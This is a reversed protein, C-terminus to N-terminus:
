DSSVDPEPCSLDLSHRLAHGELVLKKAALLEAWQKQHGINPQSLIGEAEEALTLGRFMTYYPYTQSVLTDKRHLIPPNLSDRFDRIQYAAKPLYIRIGFRLAPHPEQDFNEYYLFSVKRGDVSMKIVNHDIDGVIQRGAFVILRLLAPLEEELSRHIYLDDFVLKGWSLSECVAKVQEPQGISFLFKDADVLASGYDRWIAKLDAQITVPLSRMGPPKLGQLRIMAIYTLIDERRQTRSGEFADPDIKALTLREIRHPSGFREVLKPYSQFESPLPVRGLENALRIFRKAIPDRAFENILDIRYELRRAFAQSALYQSEANPDKFAYAIGFGAIYVRRGLVSEIFARFESQTYIKQFTGIATIVGDNFESGSEIGQDIRVAVVLLERALRFADLLTKTRESTDEIVNLVYGLNVVDSESLKEKPAHNPDWGSAKIKQRKLFRVDAGHGCGYDFFSKEKTILGHAIALAVPRSCQYRRLATKARHVVTPNEQLSAM